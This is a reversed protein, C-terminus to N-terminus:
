RNRGAGLEDVTERLRTAYRDFDFRTRTQERGAAAMTERTAPDDQLRAVAAALDDPEPLGPPRLSDTDPDYVRTPIDERSGGLSPYDELSRRAPVTVGTVGETLTEPLGDVRSAIVPCGNAAAEIAVLGFPERLSPVLMLDLSRYFTDMNRVLGHFRVQRGIGLREALHRLAPEDAGTGAIELRVRRGDRHLAAVAHLALPVGKMPTLRGALGLRIGATPHAQPAAAGTAAIAGPRLGNPVERVPGPFGAGLQLMRAAAHSVAVAGDARHLTARCADSDLFWSLGHEYYVFPIGLDRAFAGWHMAQRSSWCLVMDPRARRLLRRVNATRLTEFPPLKLGGLYKVRHIGGLTRRMRTAFVPNLGRTILASDRSAGPDHEVFETFLREVGGVTGLGVVHLIKTSAPM